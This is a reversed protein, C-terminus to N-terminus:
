RFEAKQLYKQLNSRILLMGAENTAAPTAFVQPGTPRQWLSLFVDPRLARSIRAHGLADMKGLYMELGKEMLLM